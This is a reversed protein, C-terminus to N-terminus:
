YWFITREEPLKEVMRLEKLKQIVHSSGYAVDQTKEHRMVESDSLRIEIFGKPEKGELYYDCSISFDNRKINKLVVMTNKCVM